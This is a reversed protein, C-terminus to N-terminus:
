KMTRDTKPLYNWINDDVMLTAVGAEKAPERIVVLSKETGESWAEMTVSREYRSTKVDMVLMAYSSQGRAVDDAKDLLAEVDVPDAALAGSVLMSLIM